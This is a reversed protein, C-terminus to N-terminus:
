ATGRVYLSGHDARWGEADESRVRQTTVDEFGASQFRKAWEDGSLRHMEVGTKEPWGESATNEEYYDVLVHLEGGPRLVRHAEAIAADLDDAYYLAEM